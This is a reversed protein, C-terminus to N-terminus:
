GRGGSSGLITLVQTFSLILGGSLSAFCMMKSEEIDSQNFLPEKSLMLRHM